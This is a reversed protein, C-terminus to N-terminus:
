KLRNTKRPPDKIIDPRYFALKREEDFAVKNLVARKYGLALGKPLTVYDVITECHVLLQQRGDPLYEWGRNYIVIPVSKDECADSM